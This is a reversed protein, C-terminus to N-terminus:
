QFDLVTNIQHVVAYSSTVISSNPTVAGSSFKYDRTMINYLGGGTVVQATIGGTEATRVTMQSGTNTVWLRRFKKGSDDLAATEFWEDNYQQGGIYVSNDQFHYRLFEYLKQMEPGQSDADLEEIEDPTKFRGQSHAKQLAENTPVYVTYNFTNFFGVNMTIGRGSQDNVFISGGYTIGNWQIPYVDRCLAFFESFEDHNELVSYVSSTPTQIIKDVLYTKGNDQNYVNAVTVTEGQEGNGGSDLTMGVGKGTVKLMAGGKTQYYTRGDEIDGVVIHNDVIDALANEVLSTTVTGISDGTTLSYRTAAVQNNKMYFKWREPMAAGVSAPAIYNDFVDDTPVIFSFKNELSLLYLKFGLKEVAYNMIKTNENVLIPGRVSAYDSPPYVKNVIYVVGNSCIESYLVDEKKINLSTGMQNTLSSFREPTTQLFSSHLHNNLLLSMVNDPISDWVQYREKLFKGGGENFFETLAADTPIFMAGMDSQVTNPSYDNKGPDYKLYADVKHNADAIGEANPWYTNSATFFRKVYIKDQFDPHLQRYTNTIEADYYPACFRHMFRSFLTTEPNKRMYEAMNDAPFIVKELVNIYGNKCTIDKRVIKTNFIYASNSDWTMGAPNDQTKTLIRFDEGTIGQLRMQPELFHVMTWQANDKLVYIGSERYQEWAPNDPLGSGKEFPISDLASWSTTRRMAQGQNPKSGSAGPTSSMMEVLYADDLMCSFFIARKQSATFDEFKRIGYPNNAFFAEFAADDAVFVTKTGTTKLVEAYNVGADQISEVIRLYYTFNGDDTLWDYISNGVMTKDPERDNYDYEDRCSVLTLGITLFSFVISTIKMM